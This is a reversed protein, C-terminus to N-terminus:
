EGVGEALRDDVYAKLASAPIMRRSGVRVYLIRGEKLEFFFKTRGIGLKRHAEDITLLLPENQVLPQGGESMMQALSSM